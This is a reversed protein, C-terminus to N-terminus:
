GRRSRRRSDDGRLPPKKADAATNITREWITALTHVLADLEADSTEPTLTDATCWRELAADADARL